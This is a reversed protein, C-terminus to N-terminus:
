TAKRNGETGHQNHRQNRMSDDTEKSQFSSKARARGRQYARPPPPTNVSNLIIPRTGADDQLRAVFGVVAAHSVSQVVAEVMVVMAVVVIVEIKLPKQCKTHRIRLSMAERSGEGGIRVM